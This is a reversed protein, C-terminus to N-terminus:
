WKHFGTGAGSSHSGKRYGATSGKPGRVAKPVSLESASIGNKKAYSLALKEAEDQLEDRAVKTAVKAGGRIAVAGVGTMILAVEAIEGATKAVKLVKIVNSAGRGSREAYEGLAEANSQVIMAAVVLYVRSELVNGGINAHLAKLYLRHPREWISRSPLEAGGVLDSIEAVGFFADRRRDALRAHEAIGDDIEVQLRALQKKLTTQVHGTHVANYYGAGLMTTSLLEDRDIQGDKTPIHDGDYGLSFWLEWKQPDTVHASPDDASRMRPQTIRLWIGKSAITNRVKALYNVEDPNDTRPSLADASLLKNVDLRIHYDRKEPLIMKDYFSQARDVLKPDRNVQSGIQLTVSKRYIEDGEKQLVPDLVAADLLLQIQKVHQPTLAAALGPITAILKNADLAGLAAAKQRDGRQRAM